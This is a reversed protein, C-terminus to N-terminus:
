KEPFLPMDYVEIIKAYFYKTDSTTNHFEVTEGGTKSTLYRIFPKEPATKLRIYFFVPLANAEYYHEFPICVGIYHKRERKFHWIPFATYEKSSVLYLLRILSNINDLEIKVPKQPSPRKDKMCEELISPPKKLDIIPAYAYKTDDFNNTFFCEEKEADSRYALFSNPANKLRIYAFVPIDGKWSMYISFTGLIHRRKFRFHWILPPSETLALALRAFGELNKV